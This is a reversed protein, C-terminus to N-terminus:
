LEASATFAFQYSNQSGSLITASFMQQFTWSVSATQISGDYARRFNNISPSALPAYITVTPDARKRVMFPVCVGDTALYTAYMGTLQVALSNGGVATGASYSTEFYRQCLALETGYQRYEFNTANLGVELQVGTIYFTAGSTATLATQSSTKWTNGSQWTANTGNWNSGSGLDWVCVIGIGNTAGVWTGSTPGPITVTKHEWTNTSNITYNVPYSYNATANQLALCYTGTISARVWFSVTVTQANATGWGLDATNFGEIAQIIRNYDAAGSAAGTGVTVVSSYSFGAPATSSQQTTYTCSSINDFKWRDVGFINSTTVNVSTGANRQDIVMAGNIIRNKMVSSAPAFVNNLGDTIINNGLTISM